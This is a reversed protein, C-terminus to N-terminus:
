SALKQSSTSGTEHAEIADRFDRQLRGLLADDVFGEVIVGGAEDLSRWVDEWDVKRDPNWRFRPLEPM